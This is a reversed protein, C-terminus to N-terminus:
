KGELWNDTFIKLDYEDIIYDAPISIDCLANYGIDGDELLWTLALVAFDVFDVDCGGYFDGIYIWAFEYAGMDVIETDNCDGDVIRARGDLDWPIPEVTNGDNDLDATDAPVSNNDGADICPSTSLLRVQDPIDALFLPDDGINGTGGLGGTWGQVCCYNVDPTSSSNYIQASEDTPGGDTNGWLICNTVTPSSNDNFMGGGVQGASNGSFTCNIVTPNSSGGNLMGGGYNTTSNGSFTCNTVTPSSSAGNQMGGGKNTASNGSFTCSTVTPSSSNNFMGSGFNASNGSFTCNATTPSGSANYMGGGANKPWSGNANGATITFGDLIANPETGSGTVVHYSNDNADSPTNIDGSLITEYLEIDRKNPDPEGYGAYGGYIAVGSILQFTAEQENTGGPYTSNADPKYIGQVVWIEGGDVNAQSLADQLYNYADTWSSGDNNGVANADVYLIIKAFNAILTYDGHMTVTTSTACPDAVKGEDVATGTWEWFQYNSDAEAIIPVVTGYDYHFLDEGPTTVSGGSTSSVTLTNQTTIAFALDISNGAFQHGIPYRLEQWDEDGPRSWVADDKYHGDYYDRTKVGFYTNEDHSNAEVVLWYTAPNSTDGQQIFADCPDIYFDYQWCETDSFDDYVDSCPSYWGEYLNWAYLSVDFEGSAFDRSWLLQNPESWGYPGVPNDSYISLRFDVLNADGSPAEDLRWSAWIQIDTIPGSQSCPFDDGIIQCYSADVDMGDDNLDPWQIWKIEGSNQLGNDPLAAAGSTSQGAATICAIVVLLVAMVLAM